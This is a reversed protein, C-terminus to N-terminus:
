IDAYLVAHLVYVPLVCPHAICSQHRYRAEHNYHLGRTISVDIPSVLLVDVNLSYHCRPAVIYRVRPNVHIYLVRAQM